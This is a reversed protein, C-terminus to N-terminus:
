SFAARKTRRYSFPSPGPNIYTFSLEADSLRCVSDFGPTSTVAVMLDHTSPGLSLNYAQTKELRAWLRADVPWSTKM